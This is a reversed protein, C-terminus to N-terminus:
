ICVAQIQKAGRASVLVASTAHNAFASFLTMAANISTIEMKCVKTKAVVFITQQLVNLRQVIGFVTVGLAADTTLM